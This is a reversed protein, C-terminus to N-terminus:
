IHILSLSDAATAVGVIYDLKWMKKGVNIRYPNMHAMTVIRGTGDEQRKYVDQGRKGFTGHCVPSHCKQRLGVGRCYRDRICMQAM